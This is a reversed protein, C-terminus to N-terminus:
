GRQAISIEEWRENAPPTENRLEVTFALLFLTVPMAGGCLGNDQGAFGEPLGPWEPGSIVNLQGVTLGPSTTRHGPSLGPQAPWTHPHNRSEPQDDDVEPPM